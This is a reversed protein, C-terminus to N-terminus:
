FLPFYITKHYHKDIYHDPLMCGVEVDDICKAFSFHFIIYFTCWSIMDNWFVDSSFLATCHLISFCWCCNNIHIQCARSIMLYSVHVHRYISLWNLLDLFHLSCLPIQFELLGPCGCKLVLHSPPINCWRICLLCCKYAVWNHSWSTVM